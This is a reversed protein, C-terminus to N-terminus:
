KKLARVWGLVMLVLGSLIGLAAFGAVAGFLAGLWDMFAYGVGAGVVAGIIVCSGQFIYDFKRFSPVMGVTEAVRNYTEFSSVSAEPKQLPGPEVPPTTM